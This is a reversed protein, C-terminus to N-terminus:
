AEAAKGVHEGPALLTRALKFTAAVWELADAYTSATEPWHEFHGASVLSRATAISDVLVRLDQGTNPIEHPELGQERAAGMLDTLAAEARDAAKAVSGAALGLESSAETRM